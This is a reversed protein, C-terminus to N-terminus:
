YRFKRRTGQNFAILELYGNVFASCREGNM